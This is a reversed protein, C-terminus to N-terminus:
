QVILHDILTSTNYPSKIEVIGIGRCVTVKLDPDSYEYCNSCEFGSLKFPKKLKYIMRRSFADGGVVRTFEVTQESPFYALCKFTKGTRQSQYDFVSDNREYILGGNNYLFATDGNIIQTNIIKLTDYQPNRDSNYYIWYNGVALPILQEQKLNAFQASSSLSLTFLIYLCINKPLVVCNNIKIKSNPIFGPLDRLV